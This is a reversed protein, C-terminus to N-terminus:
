PLLSDGSEGGFDALKFEGIGSSLKQRGALAEAHKERRMAFYRDADVSETRLALRNRDQIHVERNPSWSAKPSM